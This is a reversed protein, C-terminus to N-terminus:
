KKEFVLDFKKGSELLQLRIHWMGKVTSLLVKYKPNTEKKWRGYIYSSLDERSNVVLILYREKKPIKFFIGEPQETINNPDLTKQNKGLIAVNTGSDQKIEDPNENLVFFVISSQVITRKQEIKSKSTIEKQKRTKKEKKIIQTEIIESEIQKNSEFSSTTKEPPISNLFDTDEVESSAKQTQSVNENSKEDYDHIFENLESMEEPTMESAEVDQSTANYSKEMEILSEAVDEDSIEMEMNEKSIEDQNIEKASQDKEVVQNSQITQIEESPSNKTLDHNKDVSSVEEIISNEETFKIEPETKSVPESTATTSFQLAYSSAIKAKLAELNQNNKLAEFALDLENSSATAELVPLKELIKLNFSRLRVKNGTFQKKFKSQMFETFYKNTKDVITEININQSLEIDIDKNLIKVSQLAKEIDKAIPGILTFNVTNSTANLFFQIIKTKANQEINKEKFSESGLSFLNIQTSQPYEENIEIIENSSSELEYNIIPESFSHHRIIKKTLKSGLKPILSEYVTIVPLDSGGIRIQDFFIADVFLESFLIKQCNGQDAIKVVYHPYLYLLEQTTFEIPFIASISVVHNRSFINEEALSPIKVSFRNLEDSNTEFYNIYSDISGEETQLNLIFPMRQRLEYDIKIQHNLKLEDIKWIVKLGLENKSIELPQFVGLLTKDPAILSAKINVPRFENEILDEININNISDSNSNFLVNSVEVIGNYKNIIDKSTLEIVKKRNTGNKLISIIPYNYDSKDGITWNEDEYFPKFDIQLDEENYELIDTFVKNVFTLKKVKVDIKEESDSKFYKLIENADVALSKSNFYEALWNAIRRDFVSMGFGEAFKKMLTVCSQLDLVEFSNTLGTKSNKFEVTIKTFTITKAQEYEFDVKIDWENSGWFRQFEGIVQM